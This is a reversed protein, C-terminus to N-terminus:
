EVYERTIGIDLKKYGTLGFQSIVAIGKEVKQLFHSRKILCKEQFQFM